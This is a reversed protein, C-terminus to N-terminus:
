KKDMDISNSFEDPHDSYQICKEIYISASVDKPHKQYYDQFLELAKILNNHMFAAHADEWLSIDPEHYARNNAYDMLEYIGVTIEKGQVRTSPLARFLFKEHQCSAWTFESVLINVNFHKTLGEIRSGLNVSDGIATYDFRKTSGINGITMEGTNVGIGIKLPGYGEGVLYDNVDKLKLIMELAVECAETAHDSNDLPAGFIAFIADGIFKDITGEHNLVPESMTSLYKNIIAVVLQPDMRESYKTFGRIDSFLVSLVKKTGGLMLSKPDDIIKNVVTSSVYTGFANKLQKKQKQETFYDYTISVMGSILTGLLLPMLPFMTYLGNFLPFVAIFELLMLGVLALLAYLPKVYNIIFTALLIFFILIPLFQGLGIERMFAQNALDIFGTAHVEVGPMKTDSSPVSKLDEMGTASTGLFVVKDKFFESPITKQLIKYYSIYRFKQKSGLWNIRFAGKSNLPVHLSDLINLRRDDLNAKGLDAGILDAWMYFPFAAIMKLVQEDTTDATQLLQYNRLMGDNDSPMYIDGVGLAYQRLKKIPLVMKSTHPFDISGSNKLDIYRLDDYLKKEGPDFNDRFMSLYVVRANQIAAALSDDTSLYTM